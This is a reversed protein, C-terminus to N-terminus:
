QPAPGRSALAVHLDHAERYIFPAVINGFLTFCGWLGYEDRATILGRKPYSLWDFRLPIIEHGSIDILGYRLPGDYRRGVRAVGQKFPGAEHYLGAISLKGNIDVYGWGHETRVPAMGENFPKAELFLPDIAWNGQRDIYGYRPGVPPGDPRRGIPLFPRTWGQDLLRQVAPLELVRWYWARQWSGSAAALGQHFEGASDFVPPIVWNGQRDIYGFRQPEADDAAVAALGESFSGAAAFRFNIMTEGHLSIYGYRSQAGDQIRARLLGEDHFGYEIGAFGQLGIRRGQADVLIKRDSDNSPDHAIFVSRETAFSHEAFLLPQHSYGALLEGNLSLYGHQGDLTARLAENGVDHELADFRPAIVPNGDRDIAGWVGDSKVLLLNQCFNAAAEYIFPVVTNGSADIYGYKGHRKAVALGDCLAAVMQFAPPVIIDGHANMLGCLPTRTCTTFDISDGASGLCCCDEWLVVRRGTVEIYALHSTDTQSASGISVATIGKPLRGQQQLAQKIQLVVHKVVDHHFGDRAERVALTGLPWETVKFKYFPFHYPNSSSFEQAVRAALAEAEGPEFFVGEVNDPTGLKDHTYTIYLTRHAWRSDNLVNEWPTGMLLAHGITQLLSQPSCPAGDAAEGTHAEMLEVM